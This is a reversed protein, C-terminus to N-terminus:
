KTMINVKMGPVAKYGDDERTVFNMATLKELQEYVRASIGGYAWRRKLERWADGSKVTEKFFGEKLLIAIMGLANTEDTQITKREVTVEM